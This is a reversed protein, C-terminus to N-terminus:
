VLAYLIRRRAEAARVEAATTKYIARDTVVARRIFAELIERIGSGTRREALPVFEVSMGTKGGDVAARLEATVPAAITLRGDRGRVPHARVLTKGGHEVAIGVGDADWRCSGPAFVEPHRPHDAARGEQLITGVLRPESGAAARVEVDISRILDDAM